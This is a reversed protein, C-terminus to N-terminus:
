KSSPNMRTKHSIFSLNNQNQEEEDIAIIFKMDLAEKGSTV